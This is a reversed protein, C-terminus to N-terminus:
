NSFVTEKARDYDELINHPKILNIFVVTPFIYFKSTYM